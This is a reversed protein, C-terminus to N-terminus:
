VALRESLTAGVSEPYDNAMDVLAALVDAKDVRRGVARRTTRLLTELADQQDETQRWTFSSRRAARAPPVEVPAAPQAPTVPPAAPSTQAEPRSATQAAAAQAAADEATPATAGALSFVRPTKAANM